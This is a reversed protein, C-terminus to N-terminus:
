RASVVVDGVLWRHPGSVSDARVVWGRGGWGARVAWLIGKADRVYFIFWHNRDAMKLFEFVHALKVEAKDHGGLADLILADPLSKLLKRRKLTTKEVREEVKDLFNAKFNDGLYSIPLEGNRDERFKDRAVFCDSVPLQIPEGTLELLDALVKTSTSKRLQPKTALNAPDTVVLEGSLLKNMGEMGGIKNLLAEAHGMNFEGYKM